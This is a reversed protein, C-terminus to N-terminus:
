GKGYTVGALIGAAYSPLFVLPCWPHLSHDVVDLACGVFFVGWFAIGARLWWPLSSWMGAGRATAPAAVALPPAEAANDEERVISLQVRPM